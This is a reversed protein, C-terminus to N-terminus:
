PLGRPCRDCGSIPWRPEMPAGDGPLLTRADLLVAIARARPAIVPVAAARLAAALRRPAPRRDALAVACSDLEFGPLSGGGVPARTQELAVGIRGRAGGQALREALARARAEVAAAPERLMRAAGAARRARGALLLALTATWRRWRSSTSGCRAPSRTRRLAEVPEAARRAPHRGAARRAAQRRLLLRPRRRERAPARRRPSRPSGTPARLDVLTGSGLDEVVPVGRERGLAALEPLAVEAM